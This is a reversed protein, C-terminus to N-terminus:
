GSNEIVRALQTLAGNWGENHEDRMHADAFYEHTVVLETKGGIDHFEVTVLTDNVGLVPADATTSSAAGDPDSQEWAWTFVLKEPPKVERYTGGVIFPEQHDPDQMGFRYKGGVRLDVEAVPTSYDERVGWWRRLSDPETWAQFVLERPAAITRTIRLTTESPSDVNTM